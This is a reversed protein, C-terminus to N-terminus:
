SWTRSIQRRISRWGSGMNMQTIPQIYRQIRRKTRRDSMSYAAAGVGLAVLSTWAATRM